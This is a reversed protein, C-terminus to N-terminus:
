MKPSEQSGSGPQANSQKQPFMILQLIELSLVLIGLCDLVNIVEPGYRIPTKEYSNGVM